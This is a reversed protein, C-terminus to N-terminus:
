MVKINLVVKGIIDLKIGSDPKIIYPKYIHNDSIVEIAGDPMKDLRKVFLEGDIRLVYVGTGIMSHVGFDIVIPDRPHLTPEMSDGIVFIVKYDGNRQYPLFELPIVFQMTVNESYIVAGGGAAASVETYVPISVSNSPVQQEVNQPGSVREGTLVYVLEDASECLAIIKKYDLSDRSKWTSLTNQKVGLLGALDIDTRAKKVEALRKM